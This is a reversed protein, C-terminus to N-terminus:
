SRRASRSTSRRCRSTASWWSPTPPLRARSTSASASAAPSSTRFCTSSSPGCAWRRSCSPWAGRASAGAHRRGDPRAARAGRRRRARAPQALLFPGPLHDAHAHAGPAAARGRARRSRHRRAPHPRRHGAVLRMVALATTTKGSGSEGVVALTSGRRIEFSVGDVAKVVERRASGAAKGRSTCRSTTSRSCRYRDSRHMDHRRRSHTGCAALLRRMRCPRPLARRSWSCRRCRSRAARWRTRAASASPAAAAATGLDFAGHGRDRGAGARM